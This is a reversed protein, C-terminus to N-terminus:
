SAPCAPLPDGTATLRRRGPGGERADADDIRKLDLSLMGQLWARAMRRQQRQTLETPLVSLPHVLRGGRGNDVVEFTRSAAAPFLEAGIFGVVRVTIRTTTDPAGDVERRGAAELLAEFSGIDLYSASELPGQRAMEDADVDGEAAKPQFTVHEGDHEVDILTAAVHVATQSMNAVVCRDSLDLGGAQHILLMPRRQDRISRYFLHLYALWILLTGLSTLASLVEVNNRAWEIM